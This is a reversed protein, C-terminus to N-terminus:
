VEPEGAALDYTPSFAPFYVQVMRVAQRRTESASTALEPATGLGNLRVNPVRGSSVDPGLGPGRPIRRLEAGVVANMEPLNM